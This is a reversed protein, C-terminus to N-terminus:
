KLPQGFRSQYEARLDALESRKGEFRYIDVLV